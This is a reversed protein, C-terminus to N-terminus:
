HFSYGLLVWPFESYLNNLTKKYASMFFCFLCSLYQSCQFWVSLFSLIIFLVLRKQSLAYLVFYHWLMEMEWSLTHCIEFHSNLFFSFLSKLPLMSSSITSYCFPKLCDWFTEVVIFFTLVNCNNISLLSTIQRMQREILLM